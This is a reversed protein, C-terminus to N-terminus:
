ARHQTVTNYFDMVQTVLKSEQNDLAYVHDVVFDCIVEDLLVINRNKILKSVKDFDNLREQASEKAQAKNTARYILARNNNTIAYRAAKRKQNIEVWSKSNVSLHTSM